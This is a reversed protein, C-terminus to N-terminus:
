RKREAARLVPLRKKARNLRAEALALLLRTEHLERLPLPGRRNPNILRGLQEIRVTLELDRVEASFKAVDSRALKLRQECEAVRRVAAARRQEAVARRRDARQTPNVARIERRVAALRKDAARYLTKLDVVIDATQVSTTASIV